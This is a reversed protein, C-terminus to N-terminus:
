KNVMWLAAKGFYGLVEMKVDEAMEVEEISESMAKLWRDSGDM